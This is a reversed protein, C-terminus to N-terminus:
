KTALMKYRKAMGRVKEMAEKRLWDPELVEFDAGWRMAWWLVERPESAQVEYILSGDANETVCQSPHRYEERIYPAAFPSFWVKVTEPDNDTAFVCFSNQRRQDYAYGRTNSFVIDTLRAERIRCVKFCRLAKRGWHFGDLYLAGELVYLQYPDIEFQEDGTHPKCYDVRVRRRETIAKFLIDVVEEKGGIHTPLEPGQLLATCASSVSAQNVVLLKTAAKRARSALYSEQLGGLRGVALIIALREDLTLEPATLFADKAIVHRRNKRDFHFDVGFGKLLMCYRGYASKEVGLEGRIEKPTKEPFAKIAMYLHLIRELKSSDFGREGM